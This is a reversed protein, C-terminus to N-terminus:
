GDILKRILEKDEDKLDNFGEIDSPDEIIKTTPRARLFTEFLCQFMVNFGNSLHYLIWPM